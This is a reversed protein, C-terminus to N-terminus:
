VYLPKNLQLDYVPVISAREYFVLLENPSYPNM